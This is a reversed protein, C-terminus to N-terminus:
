GEQLAAADANADFDDFASPTLLLSVIAVCVALPVGGMVLASTRGFTPDRGGFVLLLGALVGYVSFLAVAVWRAWSRRKLVRAGVVTGFVSLALMVVSAILFGIATTNSSPHHEDPPPSAVLLATIVIGILSLTTFGVNVGIALVGALTVATSRTSDLSTGGPGEEASM